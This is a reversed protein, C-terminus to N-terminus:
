RLGRRNYYFRGVIVKFWSSATNQNDFKFQVRKGRSGSLIIKVNKRNVGADWNDVGWVLTGWNNGGSDLNIKNLKGSSDESDTRHSIGMDWDGTLAVEFHGTRFDKEYDRDAPNEDFEKTWFYSNIAAGNDNYTGDNLKQVFGDAISSAGYLFGNYVVFASVSLGTWPSWAGVLENKQGTTPSYGQRRHFDYVYIRNNQTSGTGHTVALYLNNQFEIGTVNVKFSEVLDFIDKEIRDSRDDGFLSSSILNQANPESTSGQLSFFGAIKDNKMGLYLQSGAYNLISRHSGCGYKADTKILIWSTDVITPMYLAWVSNEKYIILSNSHVGLGTIKEGDGNSIKIFSTSAFVFPNGLNSYYVYQPSTSDVVFLTDLHTIAYIWDPPQGADTDANAGLLSDKINDSYTTTTNDAILAVFKYPTTTGAATRYIARQAVGFSQPAVPITDLTIIENSATITGVAASSLDSYAAYSNVYAIKYLYDGVLTGATGLTYASVTNSPDPIGHRTYDTGNYKYPNTSDAGFFIIDLYMASNVQNGGTYLGQSSPITAFTTGSLVYATDDWFGVMSQNGSNYKAVFLGDCAFSGVAQTNLVTSGQRTKVTRDDFVVNLCEPSETADIQRIEHRTDLGGDFAEMKFVTRFGSRSTPM